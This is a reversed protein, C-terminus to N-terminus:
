MINNNETYKRKEGITKRLMRIRLVVHVHHDTKKHSYIFVLLDMCHGARLWDSKLVATRAKMSMSHCIIAQRILQNIIM